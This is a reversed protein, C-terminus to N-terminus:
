KGYKFSKPIYDSTRHNYVPRGVDLSFFRKSVDGNNQQSNKLYEAFSKKVILRCMYELWKDLLLEPDMCAQITTKLKNGLLATGPEYNKDDDFTNMQCSCTSCM